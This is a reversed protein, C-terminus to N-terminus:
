RTSATPFSRTSTASRRSAWNQRSNGTTSISSASTPPPAADRSPSTSAPSPASGTPFFEKVKGLEVLVVDPDGSNDIVGTSFDGAAIDDALPNGAADRLKTASGTPNLTWQVTTSAPLPLGPGYNCFLRRGDPSWSYGFPDPLVSWNIAQGADVTTDMPEDFQFVVVTNLAVDVEGPFPASTVFGPPETDSAGTTRITMDLTKGLASVTSVGPYGDDEDVPRFVMLSASYERGSDLTGAPVTVQTSLGTLQGPM